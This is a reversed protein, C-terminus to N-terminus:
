RRAAAKRCPWSGQGAASRAAITREILSSDNSGSLDVPLLAKASPLISRFNGIVEKIFLDGTTPLDKGSSYQSIFWHARFTVRADRTLIQLSTKVFQIVYERPLTKKGNATVGHALMYTHLAADLFEDIEEITATSSFPLPPSSPDYALAQYKAIEGLLANQHEDSSFSGYSMLEDFLAPGDRSVDLGQEDIFRM